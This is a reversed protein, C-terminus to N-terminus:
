TFTQVETFLVDKIDDSSSMRITDFSTHNYYAVATNNIQLTYRKFDINLLNKEGFIDGFDHENITLGGNESRAINVVVVGGELLQCKFDGLAGRIQFKGHSRPVTLDLVVERSKLPVVKSVNVESIAVTKPSELPLVDYAPEPPTYGLNSDDGDDTIAKTDTKMYMLYAVVLLGVLLIGVIVTTAEM